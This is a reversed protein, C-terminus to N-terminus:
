MALKFLIADDINDFRVGMETITTKPFEMVSEKPKAYWRFDVVSDNISSDRIIVFPINNEKADVLKWYLDEKMLKHMFLDGYSPELSGFKNFWIVNPDNFDSSELFRYPLLFANEGERKRQQSM